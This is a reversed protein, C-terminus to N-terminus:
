LYGSRRLTDVDPREAQIVLPEPREGPFIVEPNLANLAMGRFSILARRLGGTILQVPRIDEFIEVEQITYSEAKSM